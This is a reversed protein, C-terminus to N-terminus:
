SYVRQVRFFQMLGAFSRLDSTSIPTPCKRVVSKRNDVIIIGEQGDQLGLFETERTMLKYNNAGVFLKNEKLRQLVTRLHMLHEDRSDSNILIDELYVVLCKDIVDFFISNMLAQFNAPANRLGM